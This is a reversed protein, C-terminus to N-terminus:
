PAGPLASVIDFAEVTRCDIVRYVAAADIPAANAAVVARIHAMLLEHGVGVIDVPEVLFAGATMEFLRAWQNMFDAARSRAPRSRPVM